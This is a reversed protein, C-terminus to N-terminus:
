KPHESSPHETKAPHEGSPHETKSPQEKKPSTETAPQQARKACGMPLLALVATALLAPVAKWIGRIREM